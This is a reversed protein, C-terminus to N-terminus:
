TDRSLLRAPVLVNLECGNGPSTIIEARGGLAQARRRINELGIGGGKRGGVTFGKGNDKVQLLVGDENQRVTIAVQSAAAYKLTNSLQEQLIRYFQLQIDDNLPQEFEDVHVSVNMSEELKLSQILWDIKERLVTGSEILPALQHSLRRLADIAQVNQKGLNGIIESLLRKDEFHTKAMDLYLGSATLIQQVNDHLEMGIQLREREQADLVAHNIRHEEETRDTIDVLTGIVAPQGNLMIFSVIVEVALVKGDSRLARFVYQQKAKGKEVRTNYIEQVVDLDDPHVIGELTQKRLLQSKSYGFIKEFGPNVYVLMGNQIIYIGVLSQEVISRFKEESEKLIAEARKRDDISESLLRVGILRQRSDFVPSTRSLFWYEDGTETAACLEEERFIGNLSDQFMSHFMETQEPFLYDRFDAGPQLVLNRTALMKKAAINNYRLLKYEPSILYISEKTNEIIAQFIESQEKVLAEANNREASTGVVEAISDILFREERVFPGEEAPPMERVYFVEVFGATQGNVQIAARQRWPSESFDESLFRAGNYTIRARTIEPYQYSDPIIDTLEQLIDEIPKGPTNALKSARYLCSLEKVREGVAHNMKRLEAETQRLRTIDRGIAVIMNESVRKVNVEVELVSGDKAQLRRERLIHKGGLVPEYAIPDVALQGPEILDAINMSLMEARTYGLMHCISTNVDTLMGKDDMIVIADSAENFITFYWQDNTTSM